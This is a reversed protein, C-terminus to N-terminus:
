KVQYEATGSSQSGNISIDFELTVATVQGSQTPTIPLQYIYYIGEQPINAGAAVDVNFTDKVITNSIGHNSPKDFLYMKMGEIQQVSAAPDPTTLVYEYSADTLPVTVTEKTGSSDYVETQEKITVLGTIPTETVVYLTNNSTDIALRTLEEQLTPLDNTTYEVYKLLAKDIGTDYSADLEFFMDEHPTQNTNYPLADVDLPDYKTTDKFDFNDVSFDSILEAKNSVAFAKYIISASNNSNLSDDVSFEFSYQTDSQLSSGSPSIRLLTGEAVLEYNSTNLTISNSNQTFASVYTSTINGAGGGLTVTISNSDDNLYTYANSNNLNLTAEGQDTTKETTKDQAYIGAPNALDVQTLQQALSYLTLNVSSTLEIPRDFAILIDSSSGAKFDEDKSIKVSNISSDTEVPVITLNVNLTKEDSFDSPTLGELLGLPKDQEISAQLDYFGDSETDIPLVVRKDKINESTLAFSYKNDTGDELLWNENENKTLNFVSLVGGLSLAESQENLTTYSATFETLQNAASLDLNSIDGANIIASYTNSDSGFISYEVNNNDILEDINIQYDVENDALLFSYTGESETAMLNPLSLSTLRGNEAAISTANIYPSLGTVAQNTTINSVVLQTAVGTQMTSIPFTQILTENTVPTINSYYETALVGNTDEIIVYYETNVPLGIFTAQGNSSSIVYDQGLINLTIKATTIAQEAHTLEMSLHVPSSEQVSLRNSNVINLTATSTTEVSGDTATYNFIVEGLDALSPTYTWTTGESNTLDGLGKALVINTITLTDGDPDSVSKLIESVLIEIQENGNFEGLEAPQSTPEKNVDDFICGTLLTLIFLQSIFLRLM